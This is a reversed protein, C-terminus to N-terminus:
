LEVRNTRPTSITSNDTKPTSCTGEEAGQSEAGLVVPPCKCPELVARVILYLVMIEVVGALGGNLGRYVGLLVLLVEGRARLGLPCVVSLRARLPKVIQYCVWLV